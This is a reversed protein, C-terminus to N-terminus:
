HVRTEVRVAKDIADIIRKTDAAGAAAAADIRRCIPSTESGLVQAVHELARRVHYFQGNLFRQDSSPNLHNLVALYLADASARIHRQARRQVSGCVLNAALGYLSTVFALAAGNLLEGIAALFAANSGSNLGTRISSLGVVIGLFTGIAGLAVLSPGTVRASMPLTTQTIRAPDLFRNVADLKVAGGGSELPVATAALAGGETGLGADTFARKMAGGLIWIRQAASSDPGLDELQKTLERMKLVALTSRSVTHFLGSALIGTMFILFIPTIPEQVMSWVWNPFISWDM